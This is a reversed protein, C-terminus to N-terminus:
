TLDGELRQLEELLRDMRARLEDREEEYKAVKSRLEEVEGRMGARESKLSVLQKLLTDVRNEVQNWQTLM